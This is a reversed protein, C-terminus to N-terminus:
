WILFFMVVLLRLLVLVLLMGLWLIMEGFLLWISSGMGFWGLVFGCLFNIVIVVYWGFNVVVCRMIMCVMSLGDSVICCVDFVFGFAIM